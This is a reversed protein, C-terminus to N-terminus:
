AAKHRARALQTFATSPLSSATRLALDQRVAVGLIPGVGQVGLPDDNPHGWVKHMDLRPFLQEQSPAQTMYLVGSPTSSVSVALTATAEPTAGAGEQGKLTTAAAPILVPPSTRAPSTRLPTSAASPVSSLSEANLQVSVPFNEHVAARCPAEQTGNLKLPAPTMVVSVRPAAAVAASCSRGSDSHSAISTRRPTAPHPTISRSSLRAQLSGSLPTGQRSHIAGSCHLKGNPHCVNSSSKAVAEMSPRYVVSDECHIGPKAPKAEAARDEHRSTEAILHEGELETRAQTKQSEGSKAFTAPDESTFRPEANQALSQSADISELYEPCHEDFRL